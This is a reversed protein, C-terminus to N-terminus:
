RSRSTARSTSTRAWSCRRTTPSCSSRSRMSSRRSPRPASGAHRDDGHRGHRGGRRRRADTILMISARRAGRGGAHQLRTKEFLRDHPAIVIVPMEEDILAIPGHKLEGAAYGEAHIYSIEKLKLAGELALPYSRAAASISCTAPRRSSAPSCARDAARAEAGRGDAAAGRDARRM